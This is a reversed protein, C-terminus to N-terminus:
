GLITDVRQNAIHEEDDLAGAYTFVLTEISHGASQHALQAIRNRSPESGMLWSLRNGIRRRRTWM